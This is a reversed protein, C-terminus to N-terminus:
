VLKINKICVLKIYKFDFSVWELFLMLMVMLFKVLKLM